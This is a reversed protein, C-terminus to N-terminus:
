KPIAFQYTDGQLIQALQKYASQKQKRTAAVFGQIRAYIQAGCLTRFSMAIKQKVKVHRLDQEGLNNTFPVLAEFAFPLVGAQHLVLRNLLNRGKANKPRGRAKKLPPPEELDAQQCIHRYQAEIEPRQQPPLPNEQSQQNLQLLFTHMQPAWKAGTEIRETLERLLHANCLGHRCGTFDFYSAWCDHIAWQGFDKILSAEDLLAKKGRNRHVFLYSYSANCATHFWHLKGEVRMGTEDFHVVESELLAAKIQAEVPELAEYCTQTASVLTSENLRCGFLDEWLQSIKGYPLRYETNLIVSLAKIRHGYQVPGCVSAPFVGVHDIGCCRSVGLIHETVELKLSEPLDFVQRRHGLGIMDEAILPRACCSCREAHHIVEQDVDLSMKLTHGEHGPQGGPQGGRQRKIAPQKSYGESSPPKHSNGRNLGLRRRLEANEAELESIRSVLAEILSKLSEIDTPLEM